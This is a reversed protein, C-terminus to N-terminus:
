KMRLYTLTIGGENTTDDSRWILLPSHHCVDGNVTQNGRGDHSADMTTTTNTTTATDMTATDTTALAYLSQRPTSINNDVMNPDATTTVLPQPHIETTGALCPPPMAISPMTTTTSLSSTCPNNSIHSMDCICSRCNSFPKALVRFHWFM